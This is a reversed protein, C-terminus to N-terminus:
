VLRLPTRHSRLASEMEHAVEAELPPRTTVADLITAPKAELIAADMAVMVLMRLSSVAILLLPFTLPLTVGFILTYHFLMALQIVGDATSRILVGWNCM